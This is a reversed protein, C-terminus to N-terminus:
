VVTGTADIWVNNGKSWIPKNLTTDLYVLGADVNTPRSNTDGSIIPQNNELDEEINQLRSELTGGISQPNRVAETSTIPLIDNGDKNLIRRIDTM